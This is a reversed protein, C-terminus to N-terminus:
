AATHQHCRTGATCASARRFQAACCAWIVATAPLRAPSSGDTQVGNRPRNSIAGAHTDRRNSSAIRRFSSGAEFRVVDVPRQEGRQHRERQGEKRSRGRMSQCLDLDLLRHRGNSRTQRTRGAGGFGTSPNALGLPFFFIARCKWILRQGDAGGPGGGPNATAMKLASRGLPAPPRNFAGQGPKDYGSRVSTAVAPTQLLRSEVRWQRCACPWTAAAVQKSAAPRAPRPFSAASPWAAASSRSASIENAQRWASRPREEGHTRSAYSESRQLPNAPDKRQNMQVKRNM